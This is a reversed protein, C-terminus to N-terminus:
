EYQKILRSASEVNGEDSIIRSRQLLKYIGFGLGVCLYGWILSFALVLINFSIFDQDKILSNSLITGDGSAGTALLNMVAITLITMAVPSLVFVKFAVRAQVRFSLFLLILSLLLYPMVWIIIGFVYFAFFLFILDTITTLKSSGLENGPSASAVILVLLCVGWVLIPILLSLRLYTATKM